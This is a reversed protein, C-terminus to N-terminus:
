KQFNNLYENLVQKLNLINGGSSKIIKEIIEESLMCILIHEPLLRQHSLNSALIQADYFIQKSNNNFNEM